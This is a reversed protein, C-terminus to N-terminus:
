GGALLVKREFYVQWSCGTPLVKRESCVMWWCGVLIVKRESCVLVLWRGGALRVLQIRVKYNLLLKTCDISPTHWMIM